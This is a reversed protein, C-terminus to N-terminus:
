SSGAGALARMAAPDDTFVADVGCDIMRHMEKSRNVTWVHVKLESARARRVLAPSVGIYPPHIAEAGLEIAQRVPSRLSAVYLLGLKASPELSKVLRLSLRNFSSVITKALIGCEHLAELVKAELGVYGVRNNKLEVNILRSEPVVLDLVERLTPIREGRFVPAFWRGADLASLEAFTHDKVWGSGDTTRELREDHIVVLEGDKGPTGLGLWFTENLQDRDIGM